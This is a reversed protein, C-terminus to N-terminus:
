DGTRAEGGAPEVVAEGPEAGAAGEELRCRELRRQERVPLVVQEYAAAVGQFLLQVEDTAVPEAAPPGARERQQELREAVIRVRIAGREDLHAVARADVRHGEAAPRPQRVP